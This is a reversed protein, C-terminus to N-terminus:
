LLMESQYMELFQSTKMCLNIYLTQHIMLAIKGNMLLEASKMTASFNSHKHQDSVKSM